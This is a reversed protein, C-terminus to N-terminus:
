NFDSGTKYCILQELLTLLKLSSNKKTLTDAQSLVNDKRGDLQRDTRRDTGTLKQLPKTSLVITLCQESM